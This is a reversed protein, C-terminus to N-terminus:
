KQSYRSLALFQFASNLADCGNWIFMWELLCSFFIQRLGTPWSFFDRLRVSWKLSPLIVGPLIDASVWCIRSRHIADDSTLEPANSRYHADATECTAKRWDYELFNVMLWILLLKWFIIYLSFKFFNETDGILELVIFFYYNRVWWFCQHRQQHSRLARLHGHPIRDGHTWPHCGDKPVHTLPLEQSRAQGTSWCWNGSTCSSHLRVIGWRM